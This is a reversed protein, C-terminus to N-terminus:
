PRSLWTYFCRIMIARGCVFSTMQTPLSLLIVSLVKSLFSFILKNIHFVEGSSSMSGFSFNCIQMDFPFLKLNLKCTSTLLHRSNTHVWGNASVTTLPSMYSSSTDSISLTCSPPVNLVCVSFFM